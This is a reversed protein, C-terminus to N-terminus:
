KLTKLYALLDVADPDPMSDLLGEPMMSTKTFRARRVEDQPIRRDQSNPQRIIIAENDQSVLFGDLVDGDKLEVRFTRYGAEMAANPTLIARLLGETGMAGAGNLVPGIQGGQGAVTHCTACTQNFIIKGHSLDGSKQALTQYHLFKEQQVKAEAPKLLAPADDVKEIRATGHLPSWNDGTFYHLLGEPLSRTASKNNVSDTFTRDFDARIDEASRARNWIRCEHLWGETGKAPGSWGVKLHEFKPSISKTDSIDLEGNIYISLRNSPDRTLAIHTWAGAAMKKKAVLVDGAPGAWVRFHADYFNLDLVNAAGLISDNNDIGPFLKIWTEVTFPGDLTIDTDLYSDNNGDLRLVPQYLATLEEALSKLEANGPLVANMKDLTTADLDSKPFAGSKISALLATVGSKSSTLRELSLRRQLANMNPWLDVVLGPARESKSSALTLIAEQRINRDKTSKAINSLLEDQSTGIERLARLASAQSATTSASSKLTGVLDQEFAALRFATVLQIARQRANDDASWLQRAVDTLVPSLATSDFRSRVRILAQLAESSHLTSKLAEAVGSQSPFQSLRLIEEDSPARKVNPLLKAVLTASTKPELALALLLRNEAPLKEADSSTLFKATTEPHRELMLRVLYRQFEREYAERTKITKGNQTSPMNPGELPPIAFNAMIAVAREDDYHGATRIIQARVEPDSEEGFQALLELAEDAPLDNDSLARLAERRVNRDSHRTLEAIWKVDIARLGELAWLAPINGSRALKRLAPIQNTLQRDTIAQWALHIQYLSPGSLKEVLQTESLKTFDPVEFPKINKPKVRWIRGRTKDRDPHNRPVENHSIIKNYWDVIYLCGDPGVTISVPRFFEDSSLVFDPQLELRYRPGDQHLRIAQIKRTIPNAIYFVDDYPHPWHNTDSLALGSLGTGGMQFDPATGPFVPAYSKMQADSCGPYNAYEHFPMMPYGYDNAEQIFAEGNAKLVLGWINCPGQSTIDFDSGDHRFKAMRTQDFRYEAGKSTKVKGYNFAGQAMWIWNGPARTFQHPFLHSDQVGFGTLVIEKQDAKGDGDTDRLFEINPGHQVYVGDKYPLIGLPIALGEAFVRSEHPGAGFPKDFVVVKDKAISAYLAKAAEPNENADVPYELATMSWMRGQQDFVVTVFKGIGPSEKAVLEIEFGPPLSFTALEEEATLPSVKAAKKPESAGEFNPQVPLEEIFIDKVQVKSKGGGHIQIGLKGFQPIAPDQEIFDTGQVGNIWTRIRRGEAHIVYDNWDNTRIVPRLAAMDSPSMVKNRREEDYIAGYWNPEGFDCQYGKMEGSNPVRQSRIQFGSNIFGEKGTLKIKFRIIFNTYDRVTALFDNRKVLDIENGLTLCSEEVRALSPNPNCEWGTLTKGDFLPKPNKLDPPPGAFVAAACCLCLILNRM